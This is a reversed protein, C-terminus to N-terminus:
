STLGSILFSVSLFNSVLDPLCGSTFLFSSFTIFTSFFSFIFKLENEDKALASILSSTLSSDLSSFFISIGSITVVFLNIVSSSIFLAFIRKKSSSVSLSIKCLSLNIILAPPNTL